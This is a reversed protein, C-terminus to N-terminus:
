DEDAQFRVPGALLRYTPVWATNWSEMTASCVACEFSSIERSAAMSESRTYVAGCICTRQYTEPM